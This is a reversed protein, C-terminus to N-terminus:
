TGTFEFPLRYITKQETQQTTLDFMLLNNSESILHLFVPPDNQGPNNRIFPAKPRAASAYEM